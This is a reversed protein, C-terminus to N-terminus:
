TKKIVLGAIYRGGSKGNICGRRLLTKKLLNFNIHNPGSLNERLWKNTIRDGHNLTITFTRAIFENVVGQESFEESPSVCETQKSLEYMTHIIMKDHFTLEGISNWLLKIASAVDKNPNNSM